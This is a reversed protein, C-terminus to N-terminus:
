LQHNVVTEQFDDVSDQLSIDLIFIQDSLDLVNSSNQLAIDSDEAGEVFVHLLNVRLSQVPAWHVIFPKPFLICEFELCIVVMENLIYSSIYFFLAGAECYSLRWLQLPRSHYRIIKYIRDWLCLTSMNRRLTIYVRWMLSMIISFALYLSSLDTRSCARIARWFTMIWFQCAMQDVDEILWIM